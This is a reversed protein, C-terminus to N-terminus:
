EGIALTRCLKVFLYPTCLKRRRDFRHGAAGGRFDSFPHPPELVVGVLQPRADLRQLAPRQRAHNTPGDSPLHFSQEAASSAPQENLNSHHRATSPRAAPLPPTTHLVPPSTGPASLSRFQESWGARTAALSHCRCQGSTSLGIGLSHEKEIRLRDLSTDRRADAVTHKTTGQMPESRITSSVQILLWSHDDSEAPRRRYKRRSLLDDIQRPTPHCRGTPSTVTALRRAASPHGVASSESTVAPTSAPNHALRCSTATPQQM